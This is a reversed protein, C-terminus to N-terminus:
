PKRARGVRQTKLEDADAFLRGQLANKLHSM